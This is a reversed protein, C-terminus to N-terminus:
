CSMGHLEMGHCVWVSMEFSFKDSAHVKSVESVHSIPDRPCNGIKKSRIIIEQIYSPAKEHLGKFSHKFEIQYRINSQFGIFRLSHLAYTIM